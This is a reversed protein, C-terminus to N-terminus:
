AIEATLTKVMERGIGPFGYRPVSPHRRCLDTDRFPVGVSFVFSKDSDPSVSRHRSPNNGGKRQHACNGEQNLHLLCIHRNQATSHPLAGTLPKLILSLTSFFLYRKTTVSSIASGM